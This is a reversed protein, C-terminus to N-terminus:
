CFLDVEACAHENCLLASEFTVHCTACQLHTLKHRKLNSSHATTYSCGPEGCNVNAAEEHMRRVHSQLNSNSAFLHGFSKCDKKLCKSESMVDTSDKKTLASLLQQQEFATEIQGCNSWLFFM